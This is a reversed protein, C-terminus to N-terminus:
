PEGGTLTMAATGAAHTLNAENSDFVSDDGGPETNIGYKEATLLYANNNYDVPDTGSETKNNSFSGRRKPSADNTNSFSGRRHSSSTNSNSSNNNNTADDSAVGSELKNNSFSGRRHSSSNTSSNNSDSNESDENVRMMLASWLRSQERCHQAKEGKSMKKFEQPTLARPLDYFARSNRELVQKVSLESATDNGDTPSVKQASSGQEPSRAFFGDNLKKLKGDIGDIDFGSMLTAGKPGLVLLM